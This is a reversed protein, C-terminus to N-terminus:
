GAQRRPLSLQHPVNSILCMSKGEQKSDRLKSCVMPVPVRVSEIAPLRCGRTCGAALTHLLEIQDASKGCYNFSTIKKKGIINLIYLAGGLFLHPLSFYLGSDPNTLRM